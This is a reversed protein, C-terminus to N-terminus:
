HSMKYKNIDEKTIEIAEKICAEDDRAGAIPIADPILDNGNVVYMISALMTEISTASIDTYENNIYKKIIEVMEKFGEVNNLVYLVDDKKNLEELLKEVEDKRGLCLVAENLLKKDM